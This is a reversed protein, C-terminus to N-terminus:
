DGFVTSWAETGRDECVVGALRLTTTSPFLGAMCALNEEEESGEVVQQCQRRLDAAISGAQTHRAGITNGEADFAFDRGGFPLLSLAFRPVRIPRSIRQIEIRALM